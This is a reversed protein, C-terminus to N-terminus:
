RPGLYTFVEEFTRGGNGQKWYVKLVKNAPDYVSRVDQPEQVGLSPCEVTIRNTAPNINYYVLNSYTGLLGPIFKLRNAGATHLEITKNANPVLSTIASTKYNYVGDYKNKPGVSILIKNFNGSIIEGSGDTINLALAYEHDFDIQDVKIPIKLYATKTGQKITVSEALTYVAPNLPYFDYDEAENFDDILSTKVTYTVKIDKPADKPGAYNIPIVLTDSPSIDFTAIYYRIDSLPGSELNSPNGFEVVNKVLEPKLIASDDKLCSYFTSMVVIFTFIKYITKM